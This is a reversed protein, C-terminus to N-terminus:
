SLAATATPTRVFVNDVHVGELGVVVDVWSGEVSQPGEGEVELGLEV